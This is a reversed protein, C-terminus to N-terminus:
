RSKFLGALVCNTLECNCTHVSGWTATSCSRSECVEYIQDETTFFSLNGIYVTTSTHLREEFQEQNGDFRRDRYHSIVPNLRKILLAM